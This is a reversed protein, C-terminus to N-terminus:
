LRLKDRPQNLKIIEKLFIVHFNLLLHFCCAVMVTHDDATKRRTFIKIKKRRHSFSRM